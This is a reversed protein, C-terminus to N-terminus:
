AAHNSRSRTWPKGHLFALLVSREWLVRRGRHLRPVAFKDAWKQFQKVATPGEFRLLHAAEPTKLFEHRTDREGSAPEPQAAALQLDLDAATASM